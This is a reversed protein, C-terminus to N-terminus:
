QEVIVIGTQGPNLHNHYNYTGPKDFVLSVQSGNNFSGLNLPPYVLHSPHGASSVDAIGGSKNLWTVKTGAKVTLTSPSFGFSKVTVTTGNTKQITPTIGETKPSEQKIPRVLLAGGILGAILLIGIVIKSNM